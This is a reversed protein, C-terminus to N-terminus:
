YGIDAGAGVDAARTAGYSHDYGDFNVSRPAITAGLVAASAFHLFAAAVLANRIM